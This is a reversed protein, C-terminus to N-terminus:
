NLNNKLEQMVFTERIAWSNLANKYNKILEYNKELAENLSIWIPKFDQEAEYDDLTQEIQRRGIYCLYYYSRMEFIKTSDFDDPKKEIVVGVLESVKEIHYGTEEIVERRLAEYHSEGQEIGGGPFKYDGKCTYIMLLKNDKLVIARVAHRCFHSDKNYCDESALVKNFIM